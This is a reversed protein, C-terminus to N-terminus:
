PALASPHRTSTNLATNLAAGMSCVVAARRSPHKQTASAPRISMSRGSILHLTTANCHKCHQTSCIRRDQSRDPPAIGMERWACLAPAFHLTRPPLRFFLLGDLPISHSTLLPSSSISPHISPHIPSPPPFPKACHHHHKPSEDKVTCCLVACCLVVRYLVAGYRLAAVLVLLAGGGGDGDGDMGLLDNQDNDHSPSPLPCVPSAFVVQRYRVATGPQTQAPEVGRASARSWGRVV